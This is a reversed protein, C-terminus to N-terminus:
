YEVEIEKEIVDASGGSGYICYVVTIRYTGTSPLQFTHNGTYTYNYINDIWQDDPQGNEVKSWFFFFTKKEIYTTITAHTTVDRIGVYSNTITLKGASSVNATSRATATNNYYPSAELAVVNSSFQISGISLLAFCLAFSLLKRFM